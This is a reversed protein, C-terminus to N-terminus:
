KKGEKKRKVQEPFDRINVASLLNYYTKKIFIASYEM